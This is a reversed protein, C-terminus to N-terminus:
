QCLGGGFWWIAVDRKELITDTGMADKLIAGEGDERFLVIFSDVAKPERRNAISSDRTM